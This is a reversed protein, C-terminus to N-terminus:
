DGLSSPHYASPAVKGDPLHMDQETFHYIYTTQNKNVPNLWELLNDLFSPYITTVSDTQPFVKKFNALREEIHDKGFFIVYNPHAWARPDQYYELYTTELDHHKTIGVVHTQWKGLYYLPPWIFNDDFSQEIMIGHVKDKRHYLFSMAEVRNRKSYTTSVVPLAIGNLVWFFVWCGKLLKRRKQWFGSAAIFENWGIMGLIIVFPLIPLIFREQKNPFVSHFFLFIFSPWFLMPYKKLSRGFGFMLFLSIPPVLVGGIVLLYQYWPQTTYSYPNHMNYTVYGWFEAFPRKWIAMDVFGQILCMAVLTWLSFVWLKKWQKQFILVLGIGGIFFLSQFRVNFAMGALFGAWAISKIRDQRKPDVLLWTSIVLFPICVMEVLNRVSFMPYFFLLALILGVQNATKQGGFQKAIKYGYIITLLSWLAHLARIIYMKHQPNVMGRWKLYWLLLFHLGSYFLSHGDPTTAGSSPLWHNYDYGDVWSQAAEIVLFHDDSMGYGKSFIVALLRFFIGGALILTLPRKEWLSKIAEKM